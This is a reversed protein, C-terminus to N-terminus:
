FTAVLSLIKAFAFAFSLKTKNKQKQKQLIVLVLRFSEFFISFFTVAKEHYWPVCYLVAFYPWCWLIDCLFM